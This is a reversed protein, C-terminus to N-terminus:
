GTAVVEEENTAIELTGFEAGAAWMHRSRETHCFHVTM